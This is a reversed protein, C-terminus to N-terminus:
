ARGWEAACCGIRAVVPIDVVARISLPLHLRPACCDKSPAAYSPKTLRAAAAASLHLARALSSAATKERECCLVASFSANLSSPTQSASFNLSFLVASEPVSRPWAWGPGLSLLLTEPVFLWDLHGM